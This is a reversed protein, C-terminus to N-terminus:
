FAPTGSQNQWTQGKVGWFINKASDWVCSFFSGRICKKKKVNHSFSFTQRREGSGVGTNSKQAAASVVWYSYARSVHWLAHVRDASLSAPSQQIAGSHDWICLKIVTHTLTLTLALTLSLSLSLSLSLTQTLTHEQVYVTTLVMQLMCGVSHPCKPWDESKWDDTQPNDSPKLTITLFLNLNPM